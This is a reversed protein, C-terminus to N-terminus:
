KFQMYDLLIVEDESDLIDKNEELYKKNYHKAFWKTGLIYKYWPASVSAHYEHQKITRILCEHWEWYVIASDIKLNNRFFVTILTLFDSKYEEANKEPKKRVDLIVRVKVQKDALFDIIEEHEFVLAFTANNHCYWWLGYKDQRVRLDFYRVGKEYQEKLTLSQCKVWPKLVKRWGQIPLYSLSNHSGLM